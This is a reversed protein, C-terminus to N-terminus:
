YNSVLICVVIKKRMTNAAPAIMLLSKSTTIVHEEMRVLSRAATQITQQFKM